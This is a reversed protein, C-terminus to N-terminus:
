SVVKLFYVDCAAGDALMNITWPYALDGILELSRGPQLIGGDGVAAPNIAAHGKKWWLDVSGINQIIQGDCTQPTMDAIGLNTAAGNAVTQVDDELGVRKTTREHAMAGCTDDYVMGFVGRDTAGDARFYQLWWKGPYPIWLKGRRSRICPLGNSDVSPKVRFPIAFVVGRLGKSLGTGESDSVLEIMCPYDFNHPMFGSQMDPPPVTQSTLIEIPRPEQWDQLGDHRQRRILESILANEQPFNPFRPVM